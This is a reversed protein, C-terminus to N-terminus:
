RRVASASISPSRRPSRCCRVTAGSRGPAPRSRSAPFQARIAEYDYDVELPGFCRECANLAELPYGEGCVRCRLGTAYIPHAM